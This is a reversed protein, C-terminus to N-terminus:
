RIVSWDCVPQDLAECESCQLDVFRATDHLATAAPLAHQDAGDATEWVQGWRDAVLVVVAREGIECRQRIRGDHDEVVRVSNGTALRDALDEVSRQVLWVDTDWEALRDQLATLQTGYSQCADCADPHPFFVVRTSAGLPVPLRATLDSSSAARVPRAM